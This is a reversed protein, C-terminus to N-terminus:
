RNRWTMTSLGITVSLCFQPFMRAPIPGNATSRPSAAAVPSSVRTRMRITFVSPMTVAVNGVGPPLGRYSPSVAISPTGPVAAAITSSKSSEPAPALTNGVPLTVSMKPPMVTVQTSLPIGTTTTAAALKPM